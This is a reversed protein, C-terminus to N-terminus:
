EEKQRLLEPTDYANGIVELDSDDLKIEYGQRNDFTEFKVERVGKWDKIIDGEYIKKGTRDRVGVYQGVTSPVVYMFQEFFSESNDLIYMIICSGNKERILNGYVWEGPGIALGRFEIERNMANSIIQEKM